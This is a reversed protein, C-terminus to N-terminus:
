RRYEARKRRRGRIVDILLLAIAALFCTDTLHWFSEASAVQNQTELGLRQAIGLVAAIAALGLAVAWAWAIRATITKLWPSEARVRRNLADRRSQM